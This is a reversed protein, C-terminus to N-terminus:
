VGLSPDYAVHKQSSRGPAETDSKNETNGWLYDPGRSSAAMCPSYHAPSGCRGGEGSARREHSRM